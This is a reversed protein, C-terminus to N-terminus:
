TWVVAHICSTPCRLLLQRVVPVCEGAVEFVALADDVVVSGFAGQADDGNAALVPQEGAAFVTAVGGADEVGQDLAGFGVAVIRADVKFVDESAQGGGEVFVEIGQERM